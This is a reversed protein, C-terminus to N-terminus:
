YLVTYRSSVWSNKGNFCINFWVVGRDDISTNGLFTAAEGKHLTGLSKYDLGPGTRVNSKGTSGEVWNMRQTSLYAYVSSVWGSVGQFQVNYWEVGRDDYCYNGLYLAREGYSLTDLESYCLGPGTRLSEEGYMYAQTHWFGTDTSSSTTNAGAAYTAYGSTDTLYSYVSSVWGSGNGVSVCYWLVGRDDYSAKQLYNVTSGSNLQAVMAYNLGPGSRVNVTGTTYVYGAALASGAGATMILVLALIAAITKKMNLNGKRKSQKHIYCILPRM